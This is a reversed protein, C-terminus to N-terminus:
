AMVKAGKGTRFTQNKSVSALLRLVVDDASIGESQATFNPIIRHRLIPAAVAAV